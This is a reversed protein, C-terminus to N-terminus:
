ALAFSMGCGCSSSANPNRMQFFAGSLDEVFHLEGGRLLELSTEDIRVRAAGQAFERDDEHTDTDLTFAYQFGACGGGSVSVRLFTGAPEAQVLGAIRRVAAESLLFEGGTAAEIAESM